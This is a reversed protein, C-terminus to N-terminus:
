SEWIVNYRACIRDVEPYDSCWGFWTEEEKSFMDDYSVNVQHGLDTIAHEKGTVKRLLEAIAHAAARVRFYEEQTERREGIHDADSFVRIHSEYDWMRIISREDAQLLKKIARATGATTVFGGQLVYSAEDEAWDKVREECLDSVDVVVTTAPLNLYLQRKDVDLRAVVDVVNYEYELRDLTIMESSM